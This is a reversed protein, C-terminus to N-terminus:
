KTSRLQSSLEQWLRSFRKQECSIHAEDRLYRLLKTSSGSQKTWQETLIARLAEDTMRQGTPRQRRPRHALAALVAARAAPIPLGTALLAEVFHRLTRQAFDSRTGAFGPVSELRDDYPMVCHKLHDPVFQQGAVSTFIRLNSARNRPVQSLDDQVMRLYGSPLALLTLSRSIVVSLPAPRAETLVNWWQSTSCALDALRRHLDSGPTATCDYAPLPQDACVLGLGASVIYWNANVLAAATAIDTISRGQYLDRAPTDASAERVARLWMEALSTLSTAEPLHALDLRDRGAKRQTCSTIITVTSTM